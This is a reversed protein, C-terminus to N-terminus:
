PLWPLVWGLAYFGVMGMVFGGVLLYRYPYLHSTPSHYSTVDPLGMWNCWAHCVVVALISHQRLYAYSVYAGFLTTYLFQATTVLLITSATTTTTTRSRWQVFGHHVHAIGFWCPACWSTRAVKHQGNQHLLLAHYLVPVMCGRFVFEETLPALVLNRLLIWREQQQQPDLLKQLTPKWFTTYCTSLFSPPRPCLGSNANEHIRRNLLLIHLSYQILPGFYLIGTHLLIKLSAVLEHQIQHQLISVVMSWVSEEEDDDDNKECFLYPYSIWSLVAVVGTAGARWQIQRVDDRPLSRIRRPVIVYLSAVFAVALCTCYLLAHQIPINERHRICRLLIAM